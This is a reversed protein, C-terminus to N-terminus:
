GKLLRRQFGAIGLRHALPAYITMVERAVRAQREPTAFSLERMAFTREALKILVVRVDNTMSILMSYIGSLQERQENHFHDELRKSNEILDSLKGLALTDKILTAVEIGFHETIQKHTLMERRATRYLMAAVLATEDPHLYGLIDAMGVGTLFANSRKSAHSFDQNQLFECVKALQPLAMVGARKALAKLWAQTDITHEDIIQCATESLVPLSTPDLQSQTTIPSSLLVDMFDNTAAPDDNEGKSYLLEHSKGSAISAAVTASDQEITAGDKLPLSDRIKVM